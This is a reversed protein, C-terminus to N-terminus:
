TTTRDGHGSVGRQMFEKISDMIQKDLNNVCTHVEDQVTINQEPVMEILSVVLHVINGSLVQLVLLFLVYFRELHRAVEVKTHINQNWSNQANSYKQPYKHELFFQFSLNFPADESGNVTSVYKRKGPVICNTDEQFHTDHKSINTTGICTNTISQSQM